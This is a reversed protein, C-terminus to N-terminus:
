RPCDFNASGFDVIGVTCATFLMLVVNVFAESIVCSLLKLVEAFEVVFGLGSARLFAVHYAMLEWVIDLVPTTPKGTFLSILVTLLLKVSITFLRTLIIPMFFAIEVISGLLDLIATGCLAVLTSVILVGVLWRTTPFM